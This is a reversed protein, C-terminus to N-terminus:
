PAGKAIRAPRRELVGGAIDAKHTEETYSIAPVFWNKM